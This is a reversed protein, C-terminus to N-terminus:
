ESDSCIRNLVWCDEFCNKLREVRITKVNIRKQENIIRTELNQIRRANKKKHRLYKVIEEKTKYSPNENAINFNFSELSLLHLISFRVLEVDNFSLHTITNNLETINLSSRNVVFESVTPYSQSVKTSYIELKQAEIQNFITSDFYQFNSLKVIKAIVKKTTESQTINCQLLWLINWSGCLQDIDLKYKKLKVQKPKCEQLCQFDIIQNAFELYLTAEIGILPNVDFTGSNQNCQIFITTGTFQSNYKRPNGVLNCNIFQIQNWNSSLKNLDITANEFQASMNTKQNNTNSMALNPYIQATEHETQSLSFQECVFNELSDLNNRCNEENIMLNVMQAQFLNNDVQGKLICNNLYVQRWSGMLQALNIQQNALQLSILKCTLQNCKYLDFETIGTFSCNLQGIKLQELQVTNVKVDQLYLMQTACESFCNLCTCNTISIYSINGKIQALNITCQCIILSNTRNLIQCFEFENNNQGDINISTYKEKIENINITTVKDDDTWNIELYDDNTVITFPM